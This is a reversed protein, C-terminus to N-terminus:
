NRGAVKLDDAQMAVLQGPQFPANEYKKRDEEQKKVLADTNRLTILIFPLCIYWQFEHEDYYVIPWTFLVWPSLKVNVQTGPKANTGTLRWSM